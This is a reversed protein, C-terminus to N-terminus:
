EERARKGTVDEELLDDSVTRRKQSIVETEMRSTSRLQERQDQFLQNKKTYVLYGLVVCM